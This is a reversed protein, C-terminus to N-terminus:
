CRTQRDSSSPRPELARPPAPQELPTPVVAGIFRYGRKAVTEIYVPRQAEDGLAKRLQAVCRTLVNPTVFVDKWVADLLEDKTVLRDRHEVLYCLVEFTKPELAVPRGARRVAVRRLDLRIDGFEFVEPAEPLKRVLEDSM